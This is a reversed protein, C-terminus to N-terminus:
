VREKVEESLHLPAAERAKSARLQSPVKSPLADGRRKKPTPAEKAQAAFAAEAGACGTACANRGTSRRGVMGTIAWGSEASWGLLRLRLRKKAGFSRDDGCACVRDDRLTALSRSKAKESRPHGPNSAKRVQTRTNTREAETYPRRKGPRLKSPLADGRPKRRLM